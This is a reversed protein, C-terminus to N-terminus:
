PAVTKLSSGTSRCEIVYLCSTILLREPRQVARGCVLPQVPYFSTMDM